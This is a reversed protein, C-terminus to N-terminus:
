ESVSGDKVVPGSMTTDRDVESDSQVHGPGSHSIPPVSLPVFVEEVTVPFTPVEVSPAPESISSASTVLPTDLQNEAASLNARLIKVYRTLLDIQHIQRVIEGQTDAIIRRLAAGTALVNTYEDILHQAHGFVAISWENEV